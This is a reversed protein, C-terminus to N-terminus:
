ELIEAALDVLDVVGDMVEDHPAGVEDRLDGRRLAAPEVADGPAEEPGAALRHHNAPQQGAVM